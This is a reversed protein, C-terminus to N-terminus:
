GDAPVLRGISAWRPNARSVVTVSVADTDGGADAESAQPQDRAGDDPAVFLEGTAADIALSMAASSVDPNWSWGSGIKTVVVEHRRYGDMQIVIRHRESRPVTVAVPTPRPIGGDITVRAAPRSLGDLMRRGPSKFGAGPKIAVVTGGRPGTEVGICAVAGLALAVACIRAIGMPPGRDARTRAVTGAVRARDRIM